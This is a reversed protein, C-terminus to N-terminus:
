EPTVWFNYDDDLDGDWDMPCVPVKFDPKSFYAVFTTLDPTNVRAVGSKIHDFDACILTQDLKLDAKGFAAVFQTLDPTNVYAIGSKIGDADGRCNREYCWCKPYAWNMGAGVWESYFPADPKVCEQTTLEFAMDWGQLIPEGEIFQDGSTPATPINMKIADGNYFWERTKWGLYYSPPFLAEYIASITLWYINGPGEQWFWSEEPLQLDYRFCADIPPHLEHYDWGVWEENVENTDAVYEWIITGPHSYPYINCPDDTAVDTWIGIHFGIPLPVPPPVPETWGYYSGWWHIDSVPRQDECLWDDGVIQVGYTSYEDWGHYTNPPEFIVPPQSWKIIDPIDPVVQIVQISDEIIWTGLDGGPSTYLDITGTADPVHTFDIDAVAIGSLPGGSSDGIFGYIGNASDPDLGVWGLPNPYYYACVEGSCCYYSDTPCCFGGGATCGGITGLANDVAVIFWTYDTSDAANISLSLTADGTIDSNDTFLLSANAYSAFGFVLTLVLLKENKAEKL